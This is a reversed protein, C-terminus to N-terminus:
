RNEAAWDMEDRGMGDRIGDRYDIWRSEGDEVIEIDGSGYADALVYEMASVHSYMITEDDGKYIEAVPGRGPPHWNVQYKM